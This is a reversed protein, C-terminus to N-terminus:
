KPTSVRVSAGRRKPNGTLEGQVQEGFFPQRLPRNAQGHRDEIGTFARIWNSPQPM